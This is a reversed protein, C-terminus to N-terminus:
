QLTKRWRFPGYGTFITSSFRVFRVVTCLWYQTTASVFKISTLQFVIAKTFCSVYNM